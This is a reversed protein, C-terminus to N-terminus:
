GVARRLHPLGRDYACVDCLLWGEQFIAEPDERIMVRGVDLMKRSMEDVRGDLWSMLYQTWPQFAPVARMGRINRLRARAEDRRGALGLAIVRIGEDGSGGIPRQEAARLAEVDGTMLITQEISTPVNPDLRRAEEHAAIAQDYLGCYRCAHVLGAFLEPDNGHRDAERLLRVVAEAAQGNDAELQAFFKHAVTLRPNLELARRFAPEAKSFIGSSDDFYKGLVRYARGLHAWAPAFRSDLELAREYLDRAEPLGDYTKALQNAQLYLQYAGGHRPADMTPSSVAGALPVSLADVVRRAVDDQLRFLDA